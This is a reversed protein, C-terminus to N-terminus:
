INSGAYMPINELLVAKHISAAPGAMLNKTCLLCKKLLDWTRWTLFLLLTPGVDRLPLLMTSGDDFSARYHQPGFIVHLFLIIPGVGRGSVINDSHDLTLELSLLITPGVDRPSVTINNAWRWTSLCYYQQGDERWSNNINYARCVTTISHIRRWALLCYYRQGLTSATINNAWRWTSLCYYQQGLTVHFSLLITPGVDRPSVSINTAWWRLVSQGTCRGTYATACIRCHIPRHWDSIILECSFSIGHIRWLSMM